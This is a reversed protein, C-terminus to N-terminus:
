VLAVGVDVRHLVPELLEELTPEGIERLSYTAHLIPHRSEILRGLDIPTGTVVVDCPIANITEELERLQEDGYGMAPLVHGIHPFREYVEAISVM